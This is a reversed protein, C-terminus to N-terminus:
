AKSADGACYNSADFDHKSVDGYDDFCGIRKLEGAEFDLVYVREANSLAMSGDYQLDGDEGCVLRGEKTVVCFRMRFGLHGLDKTDYDDTQVFGDPMRYPFRVFSLLSM